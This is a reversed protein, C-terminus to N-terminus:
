NFVRISKSPTNGNWWGGTIRKCRIKLSTTSLPIHNSALPADSCDSSVETSATSEYGADVLLEKEDDDEQGTINEPIIGGDLYPSMEVAVTGKGGPVICPPLVDRDVYKDLVELHNKPGSFVFKKMAAKPFAYKVVGWVLSFISPARIVIMRKAIGNYRLQTIKMAENMLPLVGAKLHSSNLGSLDYIITLRTPPRGQKLEYEEIWRGRFSLERGWIVFQLLRERGFRSLLGPGDMAGGRELYIPDGEKDYGKLIASPYYRLLAKPPKYTDLITEMNNEIRWKVMDRFLEEAKHFGQPGTVFRIVEYPNNKWHHVDALKTKMAVLERYQEDDLKWLDRVYELNQVSWREELTEETGFSSGRTSVATPM